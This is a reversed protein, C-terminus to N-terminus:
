EPLPRNSTESIFFAGIASPVVVAMLLWAPSYVNGTTSVLWQAIYPTPGAIVSVILGMSLAFGTYRIRTPFSELVPPVQTGTGMGHVIAILILGLTPLVYGGMQILAFAPYASVLTVVVCAFLMPRRGFRDSALGAIPQVVIMVVVAISICVLAGGSSLGASKTLYSPMFTMLLFGPVQVPLNFLTARGMMKWGAVNGVVAKLPSRSKAGEQEINDFVPTEELRGRIYLGIGGMPLAILFPIRWGWSQMAEASLTSVLLTAVLLAVLQSGMVAISLFSTQFARRKNQSYEGIFLAAGPFEGGASIGQVFRLLALMTPAWIGAMAFSPLIGTMVTAGTMVIIIAALTRKRGIRDGIPGWLLGGLPRAVFALAFVAFTQLIGATENSSPFFVAAMVSALAGFTVLDFYEVFTGISGAVLVNKPIPRAAQEEVLPLSNLSSKEATGTM